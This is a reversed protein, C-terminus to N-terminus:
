GSSSGRKDIKKRLQDLMEQFETNTYNEVLTYQDFPFNSADLHQRIEQLFGHKYRQLAMELTSYLQERQEQTLPYDANIGSDRLAAEYVAKHRLRSFLVTEQQEATLPFLGNIGLTFQTFHHQENDSDKLLVYRTRNEQDLLEEIRADIDALELELLEINTVSGIEEYERADRIQLVLRERELLLRRLEEKITEDLHSFLFRYKRTVIEELSEDHRELAPKPDNAQGAEEAATSKKNDISNAHTLLYQQWESLEAQYDKELQALRERCQRGVNVLEKKLVTNQHFLYVLNISLLFGILAFIIKPKNLM